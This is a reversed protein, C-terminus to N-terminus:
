RLWTIMVLHIQEPALPILPSFIYRQSSYLNWKHLSLSALYQNKSTASNMGKMVRRNWMLIILKELKRWTNVNLQWCNCMIQIHLQQQKKKKMIIHKQEVVRRDELGTLIHLNDRREMCAYHACTHNKNKIKYSSNIKKWRQHATVMDEDHCVCMAKMVTTMMMMMMMSEAAVMQMGIMMIILSIMIIVMAVTRIACDNGSSGGSPTLLTATIWKKMARVTNMVGWYCISGTLQVRRVVASTDAEAHPAAPLVHGTYWLRDSSKLLEARGATEYWAWLEAAEQSGGSVSGPAATSGDQSQVRADTNTTLFDLDFLLSLPLPFSFFLLEAHPQWM